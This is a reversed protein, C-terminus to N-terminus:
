GENVSSTDVTGNANSFTFTVQGNAVGSAGTVNFLVRM